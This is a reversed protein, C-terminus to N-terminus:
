RQVEVGEEDVIGATRLAAHVANSLVMCNERSVEQGVMDVWVVRLADLAALAAAAERDVYQQAELATPVLHGKHIVNGGLLLRIWTHGNQVVKTEAEIVPRREATSRRLRAGECGPHHFSAACYVSRDCSVASM